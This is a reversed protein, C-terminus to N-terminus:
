MLSQYLGEIMEMGRRLLEEDSTGQQAWGILVRDLGSAETRGFKEDALDADHVIEGITAVRPDLITFDKVLTEFTCDDGRHGFGDSQFMDFPVADKHKNAEGFAFRSQPDIFKHILWASSVRDIGPRPRTLWIRGLFDRKRVRGRVENVDKPRADASALLGEVRSRLPSNFFDIESIEQFRKRIRALEGAKKTWSRTRRLRTLLPQYEAARAANFRLELQENPTDDLAHVQMVSAHGRSKRIVAGLWQFHEVNGATNPLLYGSTPLTLAGIRKLKRWIGVRESARKAPLSFILLLWRAESDTEANAMWDIICIYCPYNCLDSGYQWRLAIQALSAKM